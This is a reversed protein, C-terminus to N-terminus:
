IFYMIDDGKLINSGITIAIIMNIVQITQLKKIIGALVLKLVLCLKVCYNFVLYFKYKVVIIIKINFTFM